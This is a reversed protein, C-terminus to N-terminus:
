VTEDERKEPNNILSLLHYALVVYVIALSIGFLRELFKGEIGENSSSIVGLVLFFTRYAMPYFDATKKDSFTNYGFYLGAALLVVTYFFFTPVVTLLNYAIVAAIGGFLNTILIVHAKKSKHILPDMALVIIFVLTLIMSNPLFYFFYIVVPLLVILGNVAMKDLHYNTEKQQTVTEQPTGLEPFILFAFQAMGLAIALNLLIDSFILAAAPEATLSLLPFLISFMLFLMRIAEPIAILRFSWFIVLALILISALPYDQVISGLFLGMLGLVFLAAIALLSKTIGLAKTGKGLLMIAFIASIQPSLLGLVTAILLTSVVGFLSRFIATNQQSSKIISLTNDSM